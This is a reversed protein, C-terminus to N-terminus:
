PTPRRGSAQQSQPNSDWRPCPHRDTTLTTLLPRQSPNIVRGSSDERSHRTTTHSRSVEFVLLSFSAVPSHFYLWLPNYRWCFLLCLVTTNGAWRAGRPLCETTWSDWTQCAWQTCSSETCTSACTSHCLSWCVPFWCSSFASGCPGWRFRLTEGKDFREFATADCFCVRSISHRDDCCSSTYRALHGQGKQGFCETSYKLLTFVVFSTPPVLTKYCPTHRYAPVNLDCLWSNGGKVCATRDKRSWTHLSVSHTQNSELYVPKGARSSGRKKIALGVKTHQM